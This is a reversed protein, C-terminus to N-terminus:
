LLIDFSDFNISPQEIGTLYIIIAKPKEVTIESAWININDETNLTLINENLNVDNATYTMQLLSNNRYYVHHHTAVYITGFPVVLLIVVIFSFVMLIAKMLIKSLVKKTFPGRPPYKYPFNKKLKNKTWCLSWIGVIL